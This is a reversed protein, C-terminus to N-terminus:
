QSANAAALARAAVLKKVLKRIQDDSQGAIRAGLVAEVEYSPIAAARLGLKVPKPLLGAAVDAYQASRLKGYRAALPAGMRLMSIM